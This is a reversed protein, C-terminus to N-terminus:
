VMQQVQFFSVGGAVGLVVAAAIDDESMGMSPIMDPQNDDKTNGQTASSPDGKMQPDCVPNTHCAASSSMEAGEESLHKAGTPRNLSLM